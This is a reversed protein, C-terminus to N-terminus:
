LKREVTVFMNDTHCGFHHFQEDRLGTTPDPNPYCYLVPESIIFVEEPHSEFRLGLGTTLLLEEDRM